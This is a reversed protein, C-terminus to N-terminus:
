KEDNSSDNDEEDIGDKKHKNNHTTMFNTIRRLYKKGTDMHKEMTSM